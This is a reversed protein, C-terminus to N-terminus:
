SVAFVELSRRMVQHDRELRKEGDVFELCPVIAGVIRRTDDGTRGCRDGAQAGVSAAGTVSTSASTISNLAQARTARQEKGPTTEPVQLVQPVPPVQPAQPDNPVQLRVDRPTEWGELLRRQVEETSLEALLTKSPAFDSDVLFITKAPHFEDDRAQLCTLFALQVPLWRAPSLHLPTLHSSCPVKLSFIQM